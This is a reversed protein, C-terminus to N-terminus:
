APPICIIMSHVLAHAYRESGGEKKVKFGFLHNQKNVPLLILFGTNSIGKIKL